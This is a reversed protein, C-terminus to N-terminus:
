QNNAEPEHGDFVKEETENKKEFNHNYEEEIEGKEEFLRGLFHNCQPGIMMLPKMMM